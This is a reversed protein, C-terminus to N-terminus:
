PQHIHFIEGAIFLDHSLHFFFHVKQTIVSLTEMAAEPENCLLSERGFAALSKVNTSDSRYM